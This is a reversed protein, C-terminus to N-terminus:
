VTQQHNRRAIYHPQQNGDCEVLGKLQKKIGFTLNNEDSQDFTFAVGFKM